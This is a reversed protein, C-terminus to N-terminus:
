LLLKPVEHTAMQNDWEEDSFQLVAEYLLEDPAHEPWLIATKQVPQEKDSM